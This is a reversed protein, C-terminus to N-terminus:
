RRRAGGLFPRVPVYPKGVIPVVERRGGTRATVATGHLWIWSAVDGRRAPDRSGNDLPVQIWTVATEPIEAEQIIRSIGCFLRRETPNYRGLHGQM